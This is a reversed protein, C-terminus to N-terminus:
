LKYKRLLDDLADRLLIAEGVGERKALESLRELQGQTYHSTKTVMREERALAIRNRGGSKARYLADSAKRTIDKSKNGDDPCSAVGISISIELSEKKNGARLDHPGEFTSRMAEMALFAREKEVGPMVVMFEDGSYRFVLGGDPTHSSIHSALLKLVEDGIERGYKTNIKKFQDIDVLAISVSSGEEGAFELDSDIQDVFSTYGPIGTLPDLTDPKTKPM